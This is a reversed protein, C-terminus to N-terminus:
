QGLGLEVQGCTMTALMLEVFPRLTTPPNSKSALSDLPLRGNAASLPRELSSFVKSDASNRDDGLLQLWRVFFLVAFKGRFKTRPDLRSFENACGEMEAETPERELEVVDRPTQDSQAVDYLTVKALQNIKSPWPRKNQIGFRRAVFIRENYPRTLLLFSDYVRDFLELVAVRAGPESHCHLEGRLIQDLVDRSVICNEVSYGETVFIDNGARHGRLGDFDHDVFFYVHEKLGTVDRQLLRRFELLRGKGNCILVEYGLSPSIQKLWHFYIIKDDIGEFAFVAVQASHTRIAALKTKLVAPVNRADRLSQILADGESSIAM